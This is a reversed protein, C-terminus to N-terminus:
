ATLIRPKRARNSRKAVDLKTQLEGVIDRPDPPVGERLTNRVDDWESFVVKANGMEYNPGKKTFPYVMWTLESNAQTTSDFDPMAAFFQSDVAVFFKKGWRRFVPIKLQLQPVLRKQASSRFDPRRDANEPDLMGTELFHRFAPRISDGSIYTAQVELAAFDVVTENEIKGLIFDVKGIKKDRAGENKAPIKLIRVEPFVGFQAGDGFALRATECFVLDRELFRNPCTVVAERGDSHSCVGLPDAKKVKACGRDLFPCWKRTRLRKAGSSTDEVGTGFVESILM